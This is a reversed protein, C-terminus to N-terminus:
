IRTIAGDVILSGMPIYEEGIIEGLLKEENYSKIISNATQPFVYDSGILYFKSHGMKVMFDVAPIIQQQPTAGGYFVNGRVGTGTSFRITCSNERDNFLVLFLRGLIRRGADLFTHWLLM